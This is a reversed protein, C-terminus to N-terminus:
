VCQCTLYHIGHRIQKLCGNGLRIHFAVFFLFCRVPKKKNNVSFKTNRNRSTTHGVPIGPPPEPSTKHRSECLSLAWRTVAPNPASSVIHGVESWAVTAEPPKTGPGYTTSKSTTPRTYSPPAPPHNSIGLSMSSMSSATRPRNQRMSHKKLHYAIDLPGTPNRLGVVWNWSPAHQPQLLHRAEVFNTDPPIFPMLPHDLPHIDPSSTSNRLKDIPRFCSVSDWPKKPQRSSQRYRPLFSPYNPQPSQSINTEDLTQQYSPPTPRRIENTEEM